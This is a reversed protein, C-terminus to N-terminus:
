QEALRDLMHEARAAIEDAGEQTRALDRLKTLIERGRPIDNKQLAVLARVELASLRYPDSEEDRTAVLADAADANGNELELYAAKIAALGRVVDDIAPDKAIEAWLSKAKDRDGNKEAETALKMRALVAFGGGEKAMAQLQTESKGEGSHVAELYAEASRAQESERYKQWGWFVAVGLLFLLAGVVFSNGYRAWLAKARDQRVEEEVESFIDTVSIIRRSPRRTGSGRFARVM